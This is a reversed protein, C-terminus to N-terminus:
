GGRNKPPDTFHPKSELKARHPDLRTVRLRIIRSLDDDCPGRLTAFCYIPARGAASARRRAHPQDHPAPSALVLDFGVGGLLGPTIAFPGGNEIPALPQLARSAPAPPDNHHDAPSPPPSQDALPPRFARLIQSHPLRTLPWPECTGPPHSRSSRRALRM